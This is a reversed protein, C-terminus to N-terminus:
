KRDTFAIWTALSVLTNRQTINAREIRTDGTSSLGLNQVKKKIWFEFHRQWTQIWCTLHMLILVFVRVITETTGLITGCIKIKDLKLNEASFFSAHFAFCCPHDTVFCPFHWMVVQNTMTYKFSTIPHNLFWLIHFITVKNVLSFHASNCNYVYVLCLM